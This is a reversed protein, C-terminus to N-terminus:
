ISFLSLVLILLGFTLILESLMMLKETVVVIKNAFNLNTQNEDLTKDDDTRSESWPLHYTRPYKSRNM